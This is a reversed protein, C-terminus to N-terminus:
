NSELGKSKRLVQQGYLPNSTDKRRQVYPYDYARLEVLFSILM